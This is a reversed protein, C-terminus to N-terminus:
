LGENWSCKFLPEEEKAREERKECAQLLMEMKEGKAGPGGSILM